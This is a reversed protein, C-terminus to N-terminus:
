EHSVAIAHFQPEGDVMHIWRQALDNQELKYVGNRDINDRSVESDQVVVAAGDTGTLVVWHDWGDFCILVPSLELTDILWDWAAEYDASAFMTATLGLAECAKLMGDDDTGEPNTGALDILEQETIDLGVEECANALAAAGCSWATSQAVTKLDGGFRGAVLAPSEAQAEVFAALKKPNIIM